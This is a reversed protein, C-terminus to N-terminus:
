GYFGIGSAGHAARMFAALYELVRSSVSPEQRYDNNDETRRGVCPSLWGQFRLIKEDSLRGAKFDAVLGVVVVARNGLPDRFTLGDIRPGLHERNLYVATRLNVRRCEKLPNALFPGIRAGPAAAFANERALGITVDNGHQHESTGLVKGGSFRFRGCESHDLAAIREIRHLSCKTRLRRVSFQIIHHVIEGLDAHAVAAGRLMRAWGEVGKNRLSNALVAAAYGM